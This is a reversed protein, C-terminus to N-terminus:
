RSFEIEKGVKICIIEFYATKFAVFHVELHSFKMFLFIFNRVIGM